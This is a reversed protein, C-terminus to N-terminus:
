PVYSFAPCGATTPCAGLDIMDKVAFPVGYLPLSGGGARRAELARAQALLAERPLLHIWVAPDPYAVIRELVGALIDQPSTTGAQYVRALTKLDLSPNLSVDPM